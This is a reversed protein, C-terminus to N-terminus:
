SRENSYNGGWNNKEVGDSAVGESLSVTLYRHKLRKRVRLSEQAVKECRSGKNEIMQASKSLFAPTAYGSGRGERTM